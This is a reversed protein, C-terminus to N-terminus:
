PRSPWGPQTGTELESIKMSCLYTGNGTPRPRFNHEPKILLSSLLRHRNLHGPLETCLPQSLYQSEAKSNSVIFVDQLDPWSLLVGPAQSLAAISHVRALTMSVIGKATQGNVWNSFQVIGRLNTCDSLATTGSVSFTSIKSTSRILRLALTESTAGAAFESVEPWQGLNKIVNKEKLWSLNPCFTGLVEAKLPPKQSIRFLEVLNRSPARSTRSIGHSRTGFPNWAPGFLTRHPELPNRSCFFNPLIM